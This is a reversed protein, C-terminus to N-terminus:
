ILSYPKEELWCLLTWTSGQWHHLFAAHFTNIFNVAKVVDWVKIFTIDTNALSREECSDGSDLKLYFTLSTM